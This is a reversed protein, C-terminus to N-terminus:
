QNNSRSCSCNCSTQQQYSFQRPKRLLQFILVICLLSVLAFASIMCILWIWALNNLEEGFLELASVRVTPLSKIDLVLSLPLEPSM